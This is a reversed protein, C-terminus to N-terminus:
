LIEKGKRKGKRKWGEGEKRMKHLGDEEGISRNRRGGDGRV